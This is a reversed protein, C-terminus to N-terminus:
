ICDELYLFFNFSECEGMVTVNATASVTGSTNQLTLTYKGSDGRESNMIDLSTTSATSAIEIRKSVAPKGNITWTVTPSPEGKVPISYNIPRGVRVKIDHLLSKDM